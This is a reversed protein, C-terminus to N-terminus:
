GLVTGSLGGSATEAALHIGPINACYARSWLTEAGVVLVASRNSFIRAKGLATSAGVFINRVIYWM